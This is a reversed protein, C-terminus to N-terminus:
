CKGIVWLKEEIKVAWNLAEEIIVPEMLHLEM